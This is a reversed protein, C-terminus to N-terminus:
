GRRQRDAAALHDVELRHAAVPEVELIASSRRRRCPAELERARSREFGGISKSLRVFAFADPLATASGSHANRSGVVPCRAVSYCNRDGVAVEPRSRHHQPCRETRCPRATASAVVGARVNTPRSRPRRASPDAPITRWVIRLGIPLEGAEPGPRQATRDAGPIGDADARQQPVLRAHGLHDGELEAERRRADAHVPPGGGDRRRRRAAAPSENITSAIQTTLREQVQLLHRSVNEGGAAPDQSLGVIKRSPMYAVHCKGLFPLLHHECLSSFDIDKVIVM